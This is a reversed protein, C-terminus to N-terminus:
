REVPIKALVDEYPKLMYKSMQPQVKRRLAPNKLMAGVMRMGWLTKKDKQPFDYMGNEKFFRHDAQMFGQMGYVLDRFIKSGGTGLFTPPESLGNELAMTVTAALDAVSKAADQEDTAVGCFYNGGVSARGELVTRLNPEATYNGSLLYGVPSGATVTRHGNCFQRDDFMKMSSYTFHQRIPFAYVVADCSHIQDRLFTEFGDTYICHGDQACHLCGICGGQFAFSEVDARVVEFPVAREFDEMMALLNTDTERAAHVLAIRYGSRKPQAPLSPRCAPIGASPQSQPNEGMSRDMEFMLRQFFDRAQKQGKDTLLDAMDASLGKHVTLGLDSMNEAVFTHATVDFFHKSTTIQTGKKGDLRVGADAALEFFRHLQAPALFTYVPYSFIILDAKDLLDAVPAFDKELQRIRTAADLYTFRHEPHLRELYEATKLTVSNQGKPSGNIVLINVIHRGETRQQGSAASGAWRDM